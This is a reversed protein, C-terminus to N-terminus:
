KKKFMDLLGSKAKDVANTAAKGPDNGMYLAGKRMDAIAGAAAQVTADRIEKLVRQSLEVATIGEPGTGLDKLHIEPLPVTASQSQGLANLSVHIKGGTILFNNVQLKKNAKSTQNTTAPESEKGSKSSEELNSLIKSLNNNLLDTEFTIQPARLSFDNIVVKDSLISAPQLGLSADGISIAYPTKYGEPNGIVLGKLKGSGSLLVLNVSDLKVTVKTLSPGITEVEKKVISDLFFHVGIVALVILILLVILIRVIIKKM